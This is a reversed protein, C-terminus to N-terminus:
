CLCLCYEHAWWNNNTVDCNDFSYRSMLDMLRIDFHQQLKKRCVVRPSFSYQQGLEM